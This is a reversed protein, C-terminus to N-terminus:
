LINRWVTNHQLFWLNEKTNEKRWLSPHCLLETMQGELPSPSRTQLKSCDFYWFCYLYELGKRSKWQIYQSQCVQYGRPPSKKLLSEAPPLTCSCQRISYLVHSGAASGGRLSSGHRGHKTGKGGAGQPHCYCNLSRCSFLLPNIRNKNLSKTHNMYM